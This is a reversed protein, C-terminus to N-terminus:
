NQGSHTACFSAVRMSEVSFSRRAEIASVRSAAEAASHHGAVALAASAAVATLGVMWRILRDTPNMDIAKFRHM